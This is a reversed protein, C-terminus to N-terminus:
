YKIDTFKTNIFDNYKYQNMNLTNKSRKHKTKNNIINIIIMIVVGIIIGYAFTYLTQSYTDDNSENTTNLLQHSNDRIYALEPKLLYDTASLFNDEFNLVFRSVRKSFKCSSDINCKAHLFENIDAITFEDIDRISIEYIKEKRLNYYDSLESISNQDDIVYYVMTDINDLKGGQLKDDHIDDHTNASGKILTVAHGGTRDKNPFLELTSSVFQHRDIKQPINKMMEKYINLIDHRHETNLLFTNDNNIIIDECVYDVNNFDIKNVHMEELIEKFENPFYKNIVPLIFYILLNNPAYGHRANISVYEPVFWKFYEKVRTYIELDNFTNLEAYICLPLILIEFINNKDVNSENINLKLLLKNLTSSSHCRQLVTIHYCFSNDYNHLCIHTTGNTSTISSIMSNLYQKFHNFANM